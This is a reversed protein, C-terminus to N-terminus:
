LKTRPPSTRPAGSRRAYLLCAWKRQLSNTELTTLAFLRRIAIALEQVRAVQDLCEPNNLAQDKLSNAKLQPAIV